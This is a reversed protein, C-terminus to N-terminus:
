AGAGGAAGAAGRPRAAAAAPQGAVGDDAVAAGLGQASLRELAAAWGCLTSLTAFSRVTDAGVNGVLAAGAAAGVSLPAGLSQVNFPLQFRLLFRLLLRLLFM